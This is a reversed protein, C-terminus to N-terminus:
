SRRADGALMAAARELEETGDITSTVKASPTSQFGSMIISQAGRGKILATTILKTALKVRGPLASVSVGIAHAYAVPATLTVVNGAVSLVIVRELVGPDSITLVLGAFIGISSTVTITSAGATVAAATVTVAYGSVYRVIAYINGSQDVPTIGSVPITVVRRQIGAGTLDTAATQVAYTGLSWGNIQILPFQSLPVKICGQQLRYLGSEVENTAALSQNCLQDVWSSAEAIKTTLEDANVQSTRGPTITSTNVSQPDAQYEAVTIYPVPNAYSPVYPAVVPTAM